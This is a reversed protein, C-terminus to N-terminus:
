VIDISSIPENNQIILEFNGYYVVCLCVQPYGNISKTIILLFGTRLDEDTATIYGVGIM